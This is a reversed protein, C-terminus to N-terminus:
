SKTLSELAKFLLDSSCRVYFTILLLAISWLFTRFSLILCSVQPAEAKQAYLTAILQLEEAYRIFRVLRM